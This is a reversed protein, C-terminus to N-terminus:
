GFRVIVGVIMIGFIIAASLAIGVGNKKNPAYLSAHILLCIMLLTYSGFFFALTWDQLTNIGIRRGVTFEGQGAEKRDLFERDYVEAEELISRKRAELKQIANNLESLQSTGSSQAQTMQQLSNFLTKSAALQNDAMTINTNYDGM